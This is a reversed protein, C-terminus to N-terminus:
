LNGRVECSTPDCCILFVGLRLNFLAVAIESTQSEESGGNRCSASSLAGNSEWRSSVLCGPSAQFSGLPLPMSLKLWLAHDHWEM